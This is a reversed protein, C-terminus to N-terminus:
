DIDMNNLRLFTDRFLYPHLPSVRRRLAITKGIIMFEDYEFIDSKLYNCKPCCFVCNELSYPGLSNKRDLFSASYGVDSKKLGAILKIKCYHCKENSRISRFEEFSLIVPIGRYKANKLLSNYAHRHPITKQQSCRVCRGTRKKLIGSQAKFTNDCESCKFIFYYAKHGSPLIVIEQGIADKKDVAM